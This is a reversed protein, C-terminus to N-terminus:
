ETADCATESPQGRTNLSYLHLDTDNGEPRLVMLICVVVGDGADLWEPFSALSFLVRGQGWIFKYFSVM